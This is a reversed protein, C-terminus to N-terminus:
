NNAFIYIEDISGVSSLCSGTPILKDTLEHVTVSTGTVFPGKQVYGIVEKDSGNFVHDSDDKSCGSFLISFFLLLYFLQKM